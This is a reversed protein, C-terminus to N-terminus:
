DRSSEALFIAMNIAPHELDDDLLSGSLVQILKASEIPADDLVRHVLQEGLLREDPASDSVAVYNRAPM